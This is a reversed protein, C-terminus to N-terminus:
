ACLDLVDDLALGYDDAVSEPSEGAHVRDVVDVVRVARSALMPAGFNRRPDVVVEPRYQPLRIVSVRGERYTITRLYRAVVDRFVAQGSRVVVLEDALETDGSHRGYDWLVEAGDTKLRESTLAAALGFEAELRVLAPRIRQMPVGARRFAALVYAEALGVFPVVAGRGPRTTTILATSSHQRGDVGKYSVGRAWSHLTSVPTDVIRAAETLSYLPATFVDADVADRTMSGVTATRSRQVHSMWVRAM